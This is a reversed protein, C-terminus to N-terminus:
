INCLIRVHTDQMAWVIHSSVKGKHDAEINELIHQATENHLLEFGLEKWKVAAAEVVYNNLERPFPRDNRRGCGKVVYGDFYIM